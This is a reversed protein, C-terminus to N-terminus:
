FLSYQGAEALEARKQNIYTDIYGSNDIYTYDGLDISTEIGKHFDNIIQENLKNIEADLLSRDEENIFDFLYFNEILEYYILENDVTRYNFKKYLFNIACAVFRDESCGEQWNDYEMLWKDYSNPMFSIFGSRNSYHESLFEDFEDEFQEMYDVLQNIDLTLEIDIEDKAYNYYKPSYTEGVRVNVRIDGFVLENPLLEAITDGITQMYLKNDYLYSYYVDYTFLNEEFECEYFTNDLITGYTSYNVLNHLLNSNLNFKEKAM